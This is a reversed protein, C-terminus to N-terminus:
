IRIAYNESIDKLKNKLTIDISSLSIMEISLGPGFACSFIKKNGDHETKKIKKFIRNLIFLIASSGVLRTTFDTTFFGKQFVTMWRRTHVLITVIM